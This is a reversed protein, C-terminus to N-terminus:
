NGGVRIKAKSSPAGRQNKGKGQGQASLDYKGEEFKSHNKKRALVELLLLVVAVPPQLDM